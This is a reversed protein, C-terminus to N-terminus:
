RRDLKSRKPKAPQPPKRPARKARKPIARAPLPPAAPQEVDALALPPEISTIEQSKASPLKMGDWLEGRDLAALMEDNIKLWERVPEFRYTKPTFIDEAEGLRRGAHGAKVLAEKARRSDGTMAWAIHIAQWHNAQITLPAASAEGSEEFLAIVQKWSQPKAECSSRRVAEAHNFTHVLLFEPGLEEKDEEDLCFQYSACATEYDGVIMAIDGRSSQIDALRSPSLRASHDLVSNCLSLAKPFDGDRQLQEVLWTFPDEFTPDIELAKRALTKAADLEGLALRLQSLFSLSDAREPYESELVAVLRQMRPKDVSEIAVEAQSWLFDLGNRNYEILRRLLSNYDEVLAPTESPEELVFLKENLAAASQYRLISPSKLGLHATAARLRKTLPARKDRPLNPVPSAVYHIQPIRNSESERITKAVAAIGNVNQENLGFVMVVLDPLHLTCIGGVDTLGTRSDVFVYDPQFQRAIAAKWNEVFPEGLGREYLSVWNLSAQHTNYAADKRGAPMIWLKGRLHGPLECPHVFQAIDPAKQNREFETVYEVVGPKAVVSKFEHFSDLGPAELDFDILVVRRGRQVLLAAINALALSRGVGGKYSYFTTWFPKM